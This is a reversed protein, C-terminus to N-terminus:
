SPNTGDAAQADRDAQAAGQPIVAPVVTVINANPGFPRKGRRSVAPIARVLAQVENLDVRVARVGPIRYGTLDGRSIMNRVTRPHVGLLEAIRQQSVFIRSM